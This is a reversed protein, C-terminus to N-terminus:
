TRQWLQQGGRYLLLANYNLLFLFFLEEVPVHPLVFAQMIFRSSGEFFIGMSVGDLDWILFVTIALSLCILTRRYDFFFALKWRFDILLLCGIVSLLVLLYAFKM